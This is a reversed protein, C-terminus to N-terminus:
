IALASTLRGVMAKLLDNTIPKDAFFEIGLEDCLQSYQQKGSVVMVRTERQTLRPMWRRLLPMIAGDAVQTDCLFVAYIGRELLMEAQEATTVVEVLYGANELVRAYLRLLQPNDELILANQRLM